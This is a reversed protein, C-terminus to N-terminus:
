SMMFLLLVLNFVFFLVSEITNYRCKMYMCGDKKEVYFACNPCRKWKQKNALKMLMIDETERENEGLRQFEKCDIGFHWGVKCQACFLRNCHPCESEKITELGENILLASCDKFPCYFKQVGLILAECLANGWRDFVEPPLIERCHEPELIGRCTPVPCRIGSINDQLKSAVYKSMCDSCYSHSCDKIKFSETSKKPEVCIECVFSAANSNQDTKVSPSSFSSSSEGREMKIKKKRRGSVPTTEPKVTLLRIDDDEAAASADGNFSLSAQIVFQLDRDEAYDEVPIPSDKTSGNQLPFYFEEGDLEVIEIPNGM